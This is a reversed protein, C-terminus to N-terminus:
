KTKVGIHWNTRIISRTLIAMAVDETMAKTLIVRPLRNGLNTPHSTASQFSQYLCRDCTVFLDHDLASVGIIADRMADGEKGAAKDCESILQRLRQYLANEDERGFRALALRSIGYVGVPTLELCTELGLERFVRVAKQVKAQYSPMEHNVKEDVQIHSVCLVVGAKRCGEVFRDRITSRPLGSLAEFANTDLFVKM